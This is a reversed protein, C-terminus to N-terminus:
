KRINRAVAVFATGIGELINSFANNIGKLVEVPNYNEYQSRYKLLMSQRQQSKLKAVRRHRNNM